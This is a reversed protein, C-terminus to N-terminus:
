FKLWSKRGEQQIRTLINVTRGLIPLLLIEMQCRCSSITKCLRRFYYNEWSAPLVHPTISLVICPPKCTYQPNRTWLHPKLRAYYLDEQRTVLIKKKRQTKTTNHVSTQAFTTCVSIGTDRLCKDKGKWLAINLTKKLPYAKKQPEWWNWLVAKKESLEKIYIQSPENLACLKLTWKFKLELKGKM